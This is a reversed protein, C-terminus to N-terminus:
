GATFMIRGGGLDTHARPPAVLNGRHHNDIAEGMWQVADRANLRSRIDDDSFFM